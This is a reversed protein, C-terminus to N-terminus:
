LCRKGRSPLPWCYCEFVSTIAVLSGSWSTPPLGRGRGTPMQFVEPSAFFKWTLLALEFKELNSQSTRTIQRDAAASFLAEVTEDV